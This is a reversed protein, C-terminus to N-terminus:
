HRQPASLECGPVSFLTQHRSRTGYFMGRYQRSGFRSGHRLPLHRFPHTLLPDSAAAPGAVPLPPKCTEVM